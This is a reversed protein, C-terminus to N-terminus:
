KWEVDTLTGDLAGAVEVLAEDVAYNADNWDTDDPVEITVFFKLQM